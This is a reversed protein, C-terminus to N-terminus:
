QQTCTIIYILHIKEFGIVLKLTDAVSIRSTIPQVHVRCLLFGSFRNSYCRGECQVMALPTTFPVNATVKVSQVSCWVEPDKPM